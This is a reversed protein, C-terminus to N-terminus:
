VLPLSPLICDFLLSSKKTNKWPPLYKQVSIMSQRNTTQRKAIKEKPRKQNTPNKPKRRDKKREMQVKSAKKLCNSFRSFYILKM